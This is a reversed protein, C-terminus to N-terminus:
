KRIFLNEWSDILLVTEPNDIFVYYEYRLNGEEARIVDFARVLKDPYKGSEWNVSLFLRKIDMPCFDKTEKYEINM